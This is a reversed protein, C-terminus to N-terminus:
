DYADYWDTTAATSISTLSATTATSLSPPRLWEDANVTWATPPVSLWDVTWGTSPSPSRLLPIRLWDDTWVTSQSPSRPGDATSSTSLSQPHRERWAIARDTSIAPFAYESRLRGGANITWATSPVRRWDATWGTSRSLARPGDATSSTRPSQPHRGRWAIARDTSIVPFAYEPRLRDGTDVTWATPPVSLWDVTWGTSPSPSRLLPIRLWDDTWVTSQSPSRPGDATSSTQLSQPHRERWESSLNTSISPFGYEDIVTRLPTVLPFGQEDIFVLPSISVDQLRLPLSPAERPRSVLFDTQLPSYSRAFFADLGSRSTEGEQRLNVQITTPLFLDAVQRSNIQMDTPMSTSSDDTERSSTEDVNVLGELPVSHNSNSELLLQNEGASGFIGSKLAVDTDCGLSDNMETSSEEHLTVKIELPVSLDRKSEFLLRNEGPDSKSEFLLRNEGASGYVGSKLAVGTDYGSTDSISRMSAADGALNIRTGLNM